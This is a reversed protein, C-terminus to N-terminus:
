ITHLNCLKNKISSCFVPQINRIDMIGYIYAYYSNNAIAIMSCALCANAVNFFARGLDLLLHFQLCYYSLFQM